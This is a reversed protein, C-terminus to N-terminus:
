SQFTNLAALHFENVNILLNSDIRKGAKKSKIYELIPM